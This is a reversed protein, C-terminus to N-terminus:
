CLMIETGFRLALLILSFRIPFNVNHSQLRSVNSSRDIVFVHDCVSLFLVLFLVVIRYTNERLRFRMPVSLTSVVSSLTWFKFNHCILAWTLLHLVRHRGSLQNRNYRGYHCHLFDRGFSRSCTRPLLDVSHVVCLMTFSLTFFCRNNCVWITWLYPLRGRIVRWEYDLTTLFEWSSPSSQAAVVRMFVTFVWM